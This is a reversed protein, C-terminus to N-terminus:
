CPFIIGSWLRQGEKGFLSASVKIAPTYTVELFIIGKNLFRRFSSINGAADVRALRQLSDHIRGAVYAGEASKEVFSNYKKFYGIGWGDLNTRAQKAFLPLSKPASYNKGASLVFLDCM